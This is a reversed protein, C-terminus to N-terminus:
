PLKSGMLVSKQQETLIISVQCHCRVQLMLRQGPETWDGLLGKEPHIVFGATETQLGRLTALICYVRTSNL